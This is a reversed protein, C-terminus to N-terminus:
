NTFRFMPKKSSASNKKIFYLAFAAASASFFSYDLSTKLNMLGGSLSLSLAFTILLLGSIFATEKTKFGIILFVGLIAELAITMWALPADILNQFNVHIMGSADWLGLRDAVASLFSAALAFRLFAILIKEQTLKM